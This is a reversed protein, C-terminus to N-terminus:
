LEWDSKLIKKVKIFNLILQIIMIFIIIKYFINNLKLYKYKYNITEQSKVIKSIEAFVEKFEQQNLIRYFKWWSIGSINKLLDINITTTVPSWLYDTGVVFNNNWIWLTYVPINLSKSYTASEIPDSGKNSDWDTILIIIWPKEKDKSNSVLNNDALLLADGIATGVFNYTPPFEWLNFQNLKSVVSFNQDSFPMRIFPIWSFTIMSINYWTLTKALNILSDKAWEFRSPKIDNATMSLSVDFIIQINLTKNKSVVKDQVISMNMPLMLIIIILFFILVKKLNKILLNIRSTPLVYSPKAKQSYFFVAIIIILLVLSIYSGTKDIIIRDFVNFM